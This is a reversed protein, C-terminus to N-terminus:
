REGDAGWREEIVDYHAALAPDDDAGGPGTGIPPDEYFHAGLHGPSRLCVLNPDEPWTAGCTSPDTM